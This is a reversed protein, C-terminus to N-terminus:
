ILCHGSVGEGLELYISPYATPARSQGWKGPVKPPLHVQPGTSTSCDEAERGGDRRGGVRRRGEKQEGVARWTGREQM